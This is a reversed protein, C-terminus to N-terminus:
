ALHFGEQDGKGRQAREMGSLLERAELWSGGGMRRRRWSAKREQFSAHRPYLIGLAGFSARRVSSTPLSCQQPAPARYTLQVWGLGPPPPLVGQLLPIQVDQGDM